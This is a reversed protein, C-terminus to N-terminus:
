RCLQGNKFLKQLFIQTGKKDQKKLTLDKLEEELTDLGSTALPLPTTREPVFDAPLAKPCTVGM